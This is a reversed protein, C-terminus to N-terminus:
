RILADPGPFFLHESDDHGDWRIVYPPTGDPGRVDIIVGQRPPDGVRRGPVVIRNGIEARM